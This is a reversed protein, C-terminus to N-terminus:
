FDEDWVGLKEKNKNYLETLLETYEQYGNEERVTLYKYLVEDFEEESEALLLQPLTEGWIKEQRSHLEAARASDGFDIDYQSTYVTYPYTWEEMQSVLTDGQLKWQQQVLPNKMMWYTNDAGYRRDYENRDSYLLEKVEPKMVPEGDEIVYMSDEVGLYTLKQGEDSILYRLMGLAKEPNRCNKTIYTVTWGHIGSVPLEPDDRRSNKPGDVAIYVSDPDAAYRNRQQDIIDSAQYLLCFYRGEKLNEELQTRKDIFISDRLYGEEGLRRFTRLWNLYDPDTNRDYYKGEKEYPVALFCQLYLGFSNCGARTFEDSGIPILSKGNVEPYLEAAMKVAGSFGEPTTMDPSGIAEYIDKRVIFNMNSSIDPNEKFDEPTYFANPYGYLNGDPKEYWNVVDRDLQEFFRPDYQDALENLPWVLGKEILERNASEWWGLTVFDPLTDAAIMANLKEAESGKPAVFEIDVGTADTIAKSVESEGWTTMFWSYNVYWDLDVNEPVNEKQGCGATAVGAWTCIFLLLCWRKWRNSKRKGRM